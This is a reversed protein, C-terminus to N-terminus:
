ATDVTGAEDLERRAADDVAVGRRGADTGLVSLPVRYTWLDAHPRHWRRDDHM